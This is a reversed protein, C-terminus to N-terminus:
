RKKKGSKGKLYDEIEKKLKEFEKVKEEYQALWESRDSFTETTLPIELNTQIAKAEQKEKETANGKAIKVSLDNLRALQDKVSNFYEKGRRTIRKAWGVRNSRFQKKDIIGEVETVRQTVSKEGGYNTLFYMPLTKNRQRLSKVVDHGKYDAYCQKGLEQDILLVAIDNEAIWSQYDSLHPFPDVGVATWGKPLHTNLSRVDSNRHKTEDDVIGITPM